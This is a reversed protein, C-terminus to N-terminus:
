IGCYKEFFAEAEERTPFERAANESIDGACEDEVLYGDIGKSLITYNGWDTGCIRRDPHAFARIAKRWESDFIRIEKIEPM